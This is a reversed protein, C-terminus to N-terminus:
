TGTSTEILAHIANIAAAKDEDPVQAMRITSEIQRLEAVDETGILRALASRLTVVKKEVDRIPHSVCTKIHEGLVSAGHTPTGAPYEQGCFACTVVRDAM